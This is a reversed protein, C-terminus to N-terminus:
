FAEGLGVSQHEEVYRQRYAKECIGSESRVLEQTGSGLTIRCGVDIRLGPARQVHTYMVQLLWTSRFPLVPEEVLAQQLSELAIVTSTAARGFDFNHRIPVAM